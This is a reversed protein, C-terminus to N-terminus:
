SAIPTGGETPVGCKELFAAVEEAHRQEFEIVVQLLKRRFPALGGGDHLTTYDWFPAPMQALVCLWERGALPEPMDGLPHDAFWAGIADFRREWELDDEGSLARAQRERAEITPRLEALARALAKSNTRSM